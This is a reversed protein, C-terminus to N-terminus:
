YPLNSVTCIIVVTVTMVFCCSSRYYCVYMYLYLLLYAVHTIRYIVYM